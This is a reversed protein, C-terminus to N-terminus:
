RRGGMNLARMWDLSQETGASPNYELGIYGQYGAREIERFLFPYNIEGTGPEHRGPNDAIQLHAIWPQFTRFTETLEGQMRQAHYVDYQIAVNDAGIAELLRHAQSTTTIAFGAIDRTNIPEILIKAGLRQAWDAVHRINEVMVSEVAQLEVEPPIIGALCNIQRCGLAAAYAMAAEFGERFEQERGPLGAVGREGHSWNGAPSNMLVVEVGADRQAKAVDEVAYDYPFLFEVARFGSRRARDFRDLFPVEGYLMTLNADFKLM